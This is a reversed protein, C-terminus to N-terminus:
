LVLFWENIALKLCTCHLVRPGHCVCDIKSHLPFPLLALNGSQRRSDLTKSSTGM